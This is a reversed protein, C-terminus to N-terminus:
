YFKPDFFSTLGEKPYSAICSYIIQQFVFVYYDHDIDMDINIILHQFPKFGFFLCMIIILIIIITKM